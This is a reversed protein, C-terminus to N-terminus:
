VNILHFLLQHVPKNGLGEITRKIQLPSPFIASSITDIIGNAVKERNWVRVNMRVFMRGLNMGYAAGERGVPRLKCDAWWRLSLRSLGSGM